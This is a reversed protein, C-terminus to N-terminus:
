WYNINNYNNSNSSSENLACKVLLSELYSKAKIQKFAYLSQNTNDQM